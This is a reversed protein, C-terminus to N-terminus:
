DDEIRSYIPSMPVESYYPSECEENCILEEGYNNSDGITSHHYVPGALLEQYIPQQSLEEHSNVENQVPESIFLKANYMPCNMGRDFVSANISAHAAEADCCTDLSRLPTRSEATSKQIGGSGPFFDITYSSLHSNIPFSSKVM